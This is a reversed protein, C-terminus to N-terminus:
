NDSNNHGYRYFGERMFKWTINNLRSIIVGTSKRIHIFKTCGPLVTGVHFLNGLKKFAVICYPEAKIIQTYEKKAEEMKAARLLKDVLIDKDPLFIGARRSIEQCLTYCDWGPDGHGGWEFPMGILDETEIQKIM